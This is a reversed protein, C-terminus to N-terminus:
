GLHEVRIAGEAVLALADKVRVFEHTVVGYSTGAILEPTPRCLADWSLIEYGDSDGEEVTLAELPGDYRYGYVKQMARNHTGTLPDVEDMLHTGLYHLDGMTLRLGTEELTETLLATEWSDGGEVHGGVAVTLLGPYSDKTMSRKQFIVRKDPTVFWIHIERHLLGKAHIESRLAQGIVRDDESIIDLLTDAM